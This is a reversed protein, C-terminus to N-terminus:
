LPVRPFAPPQADAERAAADLTARAFDDLDVGAVRGRHLRAAGDALLARAGVANGNARHQWGVAIQILGQLAARTDGSAAAWHPELLEHVEFYLGADFLLAAAALASRM